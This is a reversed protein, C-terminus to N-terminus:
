WAFRVQAQGGFTGDVSGGDTWQAGLTLGWGGAQVGLGLEGMVSTGRTGITGTFAGDVSYAYDGDFEHIANISGYPTWRLNGADFTRGIEVGVRARSSTGGHAEFSTGGSQIARVDEVETRTYQMQPVVSLGGINWQYGVEINWAGVQARTKSQGFSSNSKVDVAMWRGSVDLYYGQPAFWTAYVGWTSGDMRNSGANGGALHQRGDANGLVLGAHFNTSLHANIGAENGSADQDYAFDGGQGFNGAVHTPDVGGDRSWTRFFASLVKDGDGYPDVGMRQRFTGVQADLMGAAGSAIDAALIGDDNLGTADIGLAFVNGSGGAGAQADLHFDWSMFGDAHGVDGLVFNGATADGNVTVLAIESRAMTPLDVLNVNLTQVSAADVGGEITLQDAAQQRGSADLDIAGTGAFGGVISLADDAAGDVFSIAGNNQFASPNGAGMDIANGDGSVALMGFNAFTDGASAALLAIGESPEADAQGGMHIVADDMFITGHNAIADDGAGFDTTGVAQWIGGAANALSDALNGTVIAGVLTGKNSISASADAGSWVAIRTGDGFAAITGTNDLVNGGTDAMRLATATAGAGYAGALIHGSNEVTAGNLGQVWAGNAEASTTGTANAIIDGQNVLSADGNSSRVLAGTAKAVDATTSAAISGINDIHAYFAGISSAGYSYGEGDAASAMATIDGENTIRSEGGDVTVHPNSYDCQNYGGYPGEVYTCDYTVTKHLSYAHSGVAFANGSNATASAHIDATNSIASDYQALVFAGYATAYGLDAGASAEIDGHNVVSGGLVNSYAGVSAGFATAMGANVSATSGPTATARSVITGDNYITGHDMGNGFMKVGTSFARGGYADADSTGATAQAVISAGAENVMSSSYKGHVVAGYAVVIGFQSQAIANIDGANVVSADYKAYTDIGTAGAGGQFFALSDDSRAIATIDGSNTVSVNGQFGAGAYIGTAGSAGYFGYAGEDHAHAHGYVSVDGDNVVDVGYIGNAEIGTAFGGGFLDVEGTAHISAGEANNISVYTGGALIGKAGTIAGYGLANAAINGYNTVSANGYYSIDKVGTAYAYDVSVNVIGREVRATATIDGQNVIDADSVLNLAYAGSANAVGIDSYAYVSIDGDNEILSVGGFQGSSQAAAGWASAYGQSALATAEIAGSNAIAADGYGYASVAQAGVAKAQLFGDTGGIDALATATASISGSNDIMASYVLASTYAGIAIAEAEGYEAIGGEAVASIDGSNTTVANGYYMSVDLAGYARAVDGTAQASITGANSTYASYNGGMSYSGFATASGGDATAAAHIDGANYVYSGFGGFSDAGRAMATGGGADASATLSGYNSVASYSGYARAARADAVGGEGASAVVDIGGDNFISAVDGVINIGTADARAGAGASADVQIDGGNIMLGIGAVGAYELAGYAAADGNVSEASVYINGYNRLTTTEVGTGYMGIASANGDVARAIVDIDDYNTSDVMTESKALIGVAQAFGDGGYAHAVVDGSNVVATAGYLSSSAYIGTALAIDGSGTAHVRGSNDVSADQVNSYSYIGTASGGRIGDAIAEIDGTNVTAADGYRLALNTAGTATALDGHAEAHIDGGNGLYASGYRQRTLNFVGFAYAYTADTEAEITGANVVSSVNDGSGYGIANIGTAYGFGDQSHASAHIDGTNRIDNASGYGFAYIGHAEARMGGDAHADAQVDGDNIVVLNGGYGTAYIARARANGGDSTATAGILGGELNRLEVDGGAVRVGVAAAYGGAYPTGATATVSAFNNLDVIDDVFDLAHVTGYGSAHHDDHNDIQTLSEVGTAFASGNVSTPHEGADVHALDVPAIDPMPLFFAREPSGAGSVAVADRAGAHAVAGTSLAFMAVSVAMADRIARTM